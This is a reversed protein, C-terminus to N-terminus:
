QYMSATGSSRCSAESRASRDMVSRSACHLCIREGDVHLAEERFTECGLESGTRIRHCAIAVGEAQQQFIGGIVEPAQRSVELDGVDVRIKDSPEQAEDFGRASVASPAAIRAQRRDPREVLIDGDIFRLKQMMALSDERHRGLPMLLPRDVIQCTGFDFRKDRRGIWHGPEAPAIPGEKQEGQLRTQPHRLQDAQGATIHDKAGSRM